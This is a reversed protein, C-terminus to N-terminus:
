LKLNNERLIEEFVKRAESQIEEKIQENEAALIENSKKLDHNEKKLEVTQAKLPKIVKDPDYEEVVLELNDYDCTVDYSRNITVANMSEAYKLKLIREDSFFYSRRTKSDSRGQLFDIDKETLKSNHMNLSSAHYKRLMHTRLRNYTSKKGLGLHNNLDVFLASLYKENIKFLKSEPGLVDKRTKLYDIIATTAEPSCFTYYYENIKKRRLKFSPIIDNRKDLLDILGYIDTENTYDQVSLIFDNITLGMTEARATGSSSIFLIVASMLPGSVKLSQKIIEKTPLDRYTLPTSHNLQKTSTYPLPQLEIEFYKYLNKVKHLYNQATTYLYNDYLYTRFNILRQRLKRNKWRIRNNEEIEAENILESLGMNNFNAYLNLAVKYGRTTSKSINRDKALQGIIETDTKMIM